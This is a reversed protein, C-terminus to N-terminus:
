NLSLIYQQYIVQVCSVYYVVVCCVCACACVLRLVHNLVPTICQHRWHRIVYRRCGSYCQRGDASNSVRITWWTLPASVSLVFNYRLCWPCKTSIYPPPFPSPLRFTKTRNRTDECSRRVTEPDVWGGIWHVGNPAGEAPTFRGPCSNWCEGGDLASTVFLHLYTEGEGYAEEEGYAKM